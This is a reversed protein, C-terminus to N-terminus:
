TNLVVTRFNNDSGGGLLLQHMKLSMTRLHSCSCPCGLLPSIKGLCETMGKVQGFEPIRELKQPPTLKLPNSQCTHSCRHGPTVIFILILEGLYTNVGSLYCTCNECSMINSCLLSSYLMSIERLLKCKM